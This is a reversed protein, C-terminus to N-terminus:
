WDTYKGVVPDVYPKVIDLIYIYDLDEVELIGLEKNNIAYIAGALLTATVQLSTAQNDEIRDAVDCIDLQSGYWYANKEHGCLLVGLEDIGHTIMLYYYNQKIQYYYNILIVVQVLLNMCQYYLMMVHIIHMIFQQDIYYNIKIRIRM